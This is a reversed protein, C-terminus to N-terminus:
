ATEHVSLDRADRGVEGVLHAAGVRGTGRPRQEFRHERHLVFGVSPKEFARLLVGQATPGRGEGRGAVPERRAVRRPLDRDRSRQDLEDLRGAGLRQFRQQLREVMQARMTEITRQAALLMERAALHGCTERGPQERTPYAGLEGLVARLPLGGDVECPAVGLFTAEEVPRALGQAAHAARAVREHSRHALEALRDVGRRAGVVLAERVAVHRPDIGALRRVLHQGDLM